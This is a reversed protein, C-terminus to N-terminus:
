HINDENNKKNFLNLNLVYIDIKLRGCEGLLDAPIPLAFENTIIKLIVGLQHVKIKEIQEVDISMLLEVAKNFLFDREVYELNFTENQVYQILVSNSEETPREILWNNPLHKQEIISIIEDAEEGDDLHHIQLFVNM